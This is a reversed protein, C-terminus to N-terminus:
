RRQGVRGAGVEPMDGEHGALSQKKKTTIPGNRGINVMQQLHFADVGLVDPAIKATVQGICTDLLKILRHIGANGLVKVQMGLQHQLCKHCPKFAM